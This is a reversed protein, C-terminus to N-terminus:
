QVGCQIQIIKSVSNLNRGMVESHAYIEYTQILNQISESLTNQLDM